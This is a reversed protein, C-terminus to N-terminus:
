RTTVEVKVIPPNPPSVSSDLEPILSLRLTKASSPTSNPGVPLTMPSGQVFNTQVHALDLTTRSVARMSRMSQLM